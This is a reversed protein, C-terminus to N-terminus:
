KKKVAKKLAATVKAADTANVSVFAFTAAVKKKVAVVVTCHSETDIVWKDPGTTEGKFYTLATSGFNLAKQAVPLYKSTKDKDDTLWVAVVSADDAEATVKGDLERLLGAMPRGWQEAQIFVYVTPKDARLAAYDVDKNEVAGTVAFVKLGPVAGGVKPGSTAESRVQAPVLFLLCVAFWRCPTM